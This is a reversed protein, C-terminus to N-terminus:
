SMVDVQLLGLPSGLYMAELVKDLIEILRKMSEESLSRGTMIKYIVQCSAPSFFKKPNLSTGSTAYQELRRSNL